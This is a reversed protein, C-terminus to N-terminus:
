EAAIRHSVVVPENLVRLVAEPEQNMVRLLTRAAGSPVRQGQEWKRYGSTSTGLALAMQTQTLKLKKRVIKPEVDNTEIHHVVLGPVHEGRMHALAELAGAIIEDGAKTM